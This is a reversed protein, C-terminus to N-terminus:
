GHISSPAWRACSKQKERSLMGLWPSETALLASLTHHKSSGEAQQHCFFACLGRSLNGTRKQAGRLSLGQTRENRAAEPRRLSTLGMLIDWVERWVVEVQMFVIAGADGLAPRGDAQFYAGEPGTEGTLPPRGTM